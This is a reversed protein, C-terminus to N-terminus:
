KQKYLDDIITRFVYQSKQQRIIPDTTNDHILMPHLDFILCWIRHICIKMLFQILNFESQLFQSKENDIYFYKILNVLEIYTNVQKIKTFIITYFKIGELIRPNNNVTPIFDNDNIITFISNIDDITAYNNQSTNQIHTYFAYQKSRDM